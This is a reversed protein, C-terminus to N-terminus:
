FKTLFVILEKKIEWDLAKKFATSETGGYAEQLNVDHEREHQIRQAIKNVEEMLRM